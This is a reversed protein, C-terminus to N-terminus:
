VRLKDNRCDGASANNSGVMKTNLHFDDRDRTHQQIGPSTPIVWVFIEPIGPVNTQDIQLKSEDSSSWSFRAGHVINGLRDLGVASFSTHQDQYAVLKGPEIHISSVRGTREATTEQTRASAHFLKRFISALPAIPLM